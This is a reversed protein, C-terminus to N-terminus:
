KGFYQLAVPVLISLVIAGFLWRTQDHFEKRFSEFSADVKGFREDIREFRADVKEFRADIKDFRRLVENEFREQGRKVDEIRSDLFRIESEFRKEDVPTIMFGCMPASSAAMTRETEKEPM